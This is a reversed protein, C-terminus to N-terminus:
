SRARMIQQYVIMGTVMAAAFVLVPLSGAAAAVVAPGPCFGVLGWGVGFLVSGAVLKADVDKTTPWHFRDGFKPMDRGKLVRYVPSYVLIGALMVLALSPDWDGFLDLFNLVKHPNTMGGVGLGGAFLLGSGLAVLGQRRTASM